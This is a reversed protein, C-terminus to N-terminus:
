PEAHNGRQTLAHGCEVNNRNKRCVPCLGRCDPRCFIKMPQALVVAQRVEDELDMEEADLRTRCEVANAFSSEVPTLCRSCEMVWRGSIGGEFVAEEDQEVVKGRLTVDGLFKGEVGTEPMESPAVSVSVETEGERRVPELRVRFVARM